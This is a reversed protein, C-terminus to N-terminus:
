EEESDDELKRLDLSASLDNTDFDYLSALARAAELRAHGYAESKLNVFPRHLIKNVAANMAAEVSAKQSENLDPVLRYLKTLEGEVVDDAYFRLAKIVPLVRYCENWTRFEDLSEDIMLMADEAAMLREHRNEEALKELDDICFLELDDLLACAPDVNRPLAIDLILLKRGRRQEMVRNMQSVRVIYDQAFASSIVVDAKELEEDLKDMATACGNFRQALAQGHAYTRNAVVVEGVGCEVLYTLALNAMEGAGILLVRRKSLDPFIRKVQDIALTSVSLHRKGVSTQSHVDKGLRIAQHFLRNLVKGTAKNASALAYAHRVQGLIQQEGIVLSDLSSVVTFLHKAVDAGEASYSHKELVGPGVECWSSFFDMVASKFDFWTGEGEGLAYIEVRNCTSLIVAESAGTYKQLCELAAPVEDAPFALRERLKVPATKYSLGVLVLGM